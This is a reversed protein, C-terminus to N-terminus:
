PKLALRNAAPGPLLPSPEVRVWAEHGSRYFPSLFHGSQGGPMHFYGTEEHGPSVVMRESAGFAGGQVRPMHSDGPLSVPDLDLWRGLWPVARSLPHTIRVRNRAGWTAEELLLKQRDLDEFVGRVSDVMLADYSPFRPDLLHQPRTELVSWVPTEQRDNRFAAGKRVTECRALVPMMVRNMVGLRFARVLRYGVSGTSARGDWKLVLDRAKAWRGALVADGEPAPSELVQLLLKQWRGLFVARDDLYLTMLDKESVPAKLALLDDRIQRARAGVDTYRTGLALYEPTGLIRNNATWLRGGAPALYRPTEAGGRWGEWGRSGDAFSVPVSGDWGVRKPLRGALTYGLEGARDGVLLNQVPVGCRPAIAMAEAVTRANELELLGMNAGGPRHPTWLLAMPRDSGSVGVLPGWITRQYRVERAPEGRVEIRETVTEFDRWGEATRYRNPQAPDTELVVLDTNDLTANTFGWAIEGNSGVILSPVGALSAGVLRRKEGAADVWELCVRFWVNPLGLDLHMDDCVIASGTASAAGHVGWSNSGPVLGFDPDGFDGPMAEVGARAGQSDAFNLVEPGPIRAAPLVSGDIAADWESAAPHFFEVAELPLARALVETGLDEGGGDDQLTFFMAFGVLVSDEARWPQPASRLLLYEPPRAGLASLGQNVGSAYAEVVARMEVALGSIVARAAERLGHRRISEDAGVLGPGLLAALEGAGRRRLLDMQFFREQAHVFGLARAVDVRNSGRLTPVGLTDREVLVPASLGSLRMEGDLAALSARLAWGLAAGGVALLLALGIAMRGGWVMWRRGRGGSGARTGRGSVSEGSKM